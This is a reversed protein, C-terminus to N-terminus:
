ENQLDKSQLDPVLLNTMDFYALSLAPSKAAQSTNVSDAEASCRKTFAGFVGGMANPRATSVGITTNRTQYADEGPNRCNTRDSLGRVSVSTCLMRTAPM